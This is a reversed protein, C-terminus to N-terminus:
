GWLWASPLWLWGAVARPALWLWGAVARTGSWMWAALMEHLNEFLSNFPPPDIHAGMAVQADYAEHLTLGYGFVILFLIVGLTTLFAWMPVGRQYWRIEDEVADDPSDLIAPEFVSMTPNREREAPVPIEGSVGPWMYAM